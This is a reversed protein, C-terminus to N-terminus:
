NLLSSDFSYFYLGGFSWSQDDVRVCGNHTKGNPLKLGKLEKILMKTGGSKDNVAISVYPVLSTTKGPDALGSGDPYAGLGYPHQHRDVVEFTSGSDLNVLKGSELLCTGEMHCKNWTNASVKAILGSAGNLDKTKPGTLHLINGNNDMDVTGEKAVWYNTFTVKNNMSYCGALAQPVFFTVVSVLASLKM